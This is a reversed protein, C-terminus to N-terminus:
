VTLPTLSGHDLVLVDLEPVTGAELLRDRVLLCRRRVEKSPLGGGIVVMPVIQLPAVM